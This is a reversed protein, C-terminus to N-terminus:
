CYKTSDLNIKHSFHTIALPSHNRFINQTKNTQQFMNQVLNTVHIIISTEKCIIIYLTRYHANRKRRPQESM